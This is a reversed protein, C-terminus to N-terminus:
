DPDPLILDAYPIQGTKKGNRELVVCMKADDAIVVTFV